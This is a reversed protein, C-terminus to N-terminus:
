QQACHPADTLKRSFASIVAARAPASGLGCVLQRTERVAVGEIASTADAREMRPDVATAWMPWGM